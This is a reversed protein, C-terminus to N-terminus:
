VPRPIIFGSFLNWLCVFFYILVASIQPNPTLAVTMMGFLTFYIFSMFLYYFFWLFKAATWELGMTPYLFFAYITTQIVIYIAEITVQVIAANLNYYNRM